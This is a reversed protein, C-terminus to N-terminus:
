QLNLLFRCTKLYEKELLSNFGYKGCYHLYKDLSHSKPENLIIDPTGQFPLTVLPLNFEKIRRGEQISQFAKSKVSLEKRLYKCATKEAVGDVGRINDTPCGAIAKVKVWQEVPIGYDNKFNELTYHEKMYISVFPTLLQYLDSDTSIIIFSDVNNNVISAILDDAEYGEQFYSPFGLEPLIISKLTNFQKYCSNDIKEEEPTKEKRRNGKYDPYIEKRKSSLSDWCFVFNSSNLAKAVKIIKLFFLFIIGTKLGEYDLNASHKAQHCIANADVIITM